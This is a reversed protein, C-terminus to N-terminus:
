SRKMRTIENHHTVVLKEYKERSSKRYTDFEEQTNELEKKTQATVVHNRKFWLVLIVSFLALGVVIIWMVTNYLIKNMQIGLFSLSDKTRIAQDRDNKVRALDSNLTEIQLNRETLRSDLQTIELRAEDLSDLVNSIMKLFIDNRIARYDNYIRTREQLYDMQSEITATDMVAPMTYQANSPQMSALVLCLCAVLPAAPQIFTKM